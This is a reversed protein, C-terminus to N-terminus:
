DGRLYFLATYKGMRPALYNERLGCYEDILNDAILNSKGSM